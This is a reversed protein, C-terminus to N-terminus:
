GRASAKALTASPGRTMDDQFCRWRLSPWDRIALCPLGQPGRNARILQALTAVGNRLGAPGAGRGAIRDPGVLLCYAEDGRPPPVIALESCRATPSSNGLHPRWPREGGATAERGDPPDALIIQPTRVDAKPGTRVVVPRDLRVNRTATDSGQSVAGTAPIQCRRGMSPPRFPSATRPLRSVFRLPREHDPEKLDVRSPRTVNRGGEAPFWVDSNYGALPTLMLKSPGPPQRKSVRSSAPRSADPSTGNCGDLISRPRAPLLSGPLDARDADLRVAAPGDAIAIREYTKWAGNRFDGVLVSWPGERGTLVCEGPEYPALVIASSRRLDARDLALLAHLGRGTTLTQGGVRVEGAASIALIRGDDSCHLLAPWGDATRLTVSTGGPRLTVDTTGGLPRNNAVVFVSGHATPQRFINIRPDHPEISLPAIPNGTQRGADALISQYLRQRLLRDTEQDSQEIPDSLFYVLGKGVRTRVLVPSGDPQRGLVDGGLPRVTLCPGPAAAGDRDSRSGRDGISGAFPRQSPLMRRHAGPRGARPAAAAKVPRRHEDRCLDGTLFVMGGGRVWKLLASYAKDTM